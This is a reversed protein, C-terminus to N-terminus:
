QNVAEIVPLHFLRGWLQLSRSQALPIITQRTWTTSSMGILVSPSELTSQLLTWLLLQEYCVLVAARHDGLVVTGPCDFCPRFSSDVFPNWMAIPVPVRQFYSDREGRTGLLVAGNRQESSDPIPFTTGVIAIQQRDELALILPYLFLITAENWRPITSEPLILVEASDPNNFGQFTLLLEALSDSNSATESSPLDVANWHPVPTAPLNVTNAVLICICLAALAARRMPTVLLSSTLMTLVLGFWGMGPFLAGAALLPSAWGILGVPPIVSLLIAVPLRWTKQSRHASWLLAWPAALLCTALLFIGINAATSSTVWDAAQLAPIMPYSATAYYAAIVAFCAFRTAQSYAIAPVAAVAAVLWFPGHWATAGIAGATLVAVAFTTGNTM